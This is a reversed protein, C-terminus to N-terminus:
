TPIGDGMIRGYENRIESLPVQSNTSPQSAPQTPTRKQLSIKKTQVRRKTWRSHSSGQSGVGIGAGGQGAAASLGLHVVIPKQMTAVKDNSHKRITDLTEVHNVLLPEEKGPCSAKTAFTNNSMYVERLVQDWLNTTDQSLINGEM